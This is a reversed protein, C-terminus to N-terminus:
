KAKKAAAEDRKTKAQLALTTTILYTELPAEKFLAILLDERLAVGRNYTRAGFKGDSDANELYGLNVMIDQFHKITPNAEVKNNPDYTDLAEFLFFELTLFARIFAKETAKDNNKGNIQANNLFGWSALMTQFERVDAESPENDNSKSIKLVKVLEAIQKARFEKREAIQEVTAKESVDDSNASLFANAVFNNTPSTLDVDEMQAIVSRFRTLSKSLEAMENGLGPFANIDINGFRRLLWKGTRVDDEFGVNELINAFDNVVVMTSVQPNNTAAKGAKIELLAKAVIDTRLHVGKKQLVELRDIIANFKIREKRLVSTLKATDGNTAAIESKLESQLGAIDKGVGSLESAENAKYGTYCSGTIGGAIILSSLRVHKKCWDFISDITTNNKAPKDTDDYEQHETDERDKRAM